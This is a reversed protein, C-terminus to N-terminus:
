RAPFQLGAFVHVAGANDAGLDSEPASVVLDDSGDGDLDGVGVQWGFGVGVEPGRLLLPPGRLYGVIPGLYVDITGPGVLALDSAGDGDFDGVAANVESSWVLDADRASRAGRHPGRFGFFTRNGSAGLAAVLLDDVGDGDFDAVSAREGFRDGIARGTFTAFASRWLPLEGTRAGSVLALAGTGELQIAGVVLDTVGDGDLDAAPGLGIAEDYPDGVLHLGAPGAPGTPPRPFLHVEGGYPYALSSVAVEGGAAGPYRAIRAVYGVGEDEVWWTAAEPETRGEALAFGYVARDGQNSVAFGGAYGVVTDGWTGRGPAPVWQVARDRVPGSPPLGELRYVEATPPGGTADFADSGGVLVDVLGNGDLDGVWLGRGVSGGPVSGTWTVTPPVGVYSFGTHGTETSTASHLPPESERDPPPAPDRCACLWTWIV